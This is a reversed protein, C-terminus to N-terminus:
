RIFHPPQRELKDYGRSAQRSTLGPTRACGPPSSWSRATETSLTTSKVNGSKPTFVRPRVAATAKSRPTRVGTPMFTANYESQSLRPGMEQLNWRLWFNEIRSTRLLENMMTLTRECKLVSKECRHAIASIQRIMSDYQRYTSQEYRCKRPLPKKEKRETTCPRFHTNNDENKSCKTRMASSPSVTAFIENGKKAGASTKRNVASASLNNTIRPMASVKTSNSKSTENNSKGNGTHIHGYKDEVHEDQIRQAATTEEVSNDGTWVAAPGKSLNGNAMCPSSAMDRNSGIGEPSETEDLFPLLLLSSTSNDGRIATTSWRSEELFLDASENLDVLVDTEIHQPRKIGPPL